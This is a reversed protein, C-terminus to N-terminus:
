SKNMIYLHCPVSATEFSEGNESVVQTTCIMVTLIFLILYLLKNVM